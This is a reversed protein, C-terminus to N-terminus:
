DIDATMLRYRRDELVCQVAAHTFFFSFVAHCCVEFDVDTKTVWDRLLCATARRSSPDDLLKLSLKILESTGEPELALAVDLASAHCAEQLEINDAQM